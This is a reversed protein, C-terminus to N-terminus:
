MSDWGSIQLNNEGAAIREDQAGPPRFLDTLAKGGDRM